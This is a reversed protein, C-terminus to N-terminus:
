CPLRWSEICRGRRRGPVGPWIRVGMAGGYGAVIAVDQDIVQPQIADGDIVQVRERRLESRVSRGRVLRQGAGTRATKGKM